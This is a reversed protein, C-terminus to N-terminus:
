INPTRETECLWLELIFIAWLSEALNDAPTALQQKILSSIFNENFLNRSRFKASNFTEMMLEYIIHGKNIMSAIPLLFPQKKRKLVSEPLSSKAAEYLIRKGVTGEIKFHNPITRSFSTIRPQCFPVRVEISNAMSLHDVRRLIYYPFRQNQEFSLLAELRTMNCQVNRIEDYTKDYLNTFGKMHTAYDKSYLRQRYDIPIASYKDLYEELWFDENSSSAHEFRAYGAFYEDAGEGTLAVKFGSNKVERFLAYTSVSHPASNPQGLHAVTKSILEPFESEKILIQHHESGCLKSVENAYHREDQPWSGEYWINFSHLKNTHKSAITSIYSSDLGGSTIVCVPVDCMMLSKVEENILHNLTAGAEEFSNDKAEYSISTRYLLHKPPEGAESIIITSPPLTYIGKYITETGWIAKGTFYEDISEPRIIKPTNPFALLARLESSFRLSLSSQDWYYYLSKIGAPDSAIILKLKDRKDIIAISFMGDIQKIFDIGYEIYLPILISGDCNDEFTYGIKELKKRLEVHNYIEGNFVVFICNNYTYPQSGGNIGQISLRNNGLAWKTDNIITQEDPGGEIQLKSIQTLASYSVDIEGIYGFIRCM